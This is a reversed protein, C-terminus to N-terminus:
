VARDAAARALGLSVAKEISKRLDEPGVAAAIEAAEQLQAATPHPASPRPVEEPVAALPGPSFRVAQVGARRAIEEARHKLEFAWIADATNVHLTGDRGFRSPWANRAIAEGVVAPWREALAQIEARPGFRGLETRV